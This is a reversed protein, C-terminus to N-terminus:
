RELWWRGGPIPGRSYLVVDPMKGGRRPRWPRPQERERLYGGLGRIGLGYPVFNDKHAFALLHTCGIAYVTTGGEIMERVHDALRYQSALKGGRFGASSPLAGAGVLLVIAAAVARSLAAPSRRSILRQPLWAVMGGSVAMFPEAFFRDPFGQYDYITFAVAAHSALVFFLWGPNDAFFRLARSPRILTYGWVGAMATIMLTPLVSEAQIGDQVRLFWVLHKLTNGIGHTMFHLPFYVSQSLQEALAGKSLFYAEYPLVASLWGLAFLSTNRLRGTRSLITIMAAIAALVTSQWCLFALACCLGALFFRKANVALACLLLFLAMFVKPRVGMSGMSTFGQLSMMFFASLHAALFSGSLRRTLLWVLAIVAATFVISLIRASDLDALGITRGASIAAASLLMTLSNKPDFQSVHPAVGSAAREAIFFYHQNDSVLPAYLPSTALLRVIGLVFFATVFFLTWRSDDFRRYGAHKGPLNGM